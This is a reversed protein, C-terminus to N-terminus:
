RYSNFIYELEDETFYGRYIELIKNDDDNFLKDRFLRGDNGMRAIDLTVGTPVIPYRMLDVEQVVKTIPLNYKRESECYLRLKENKLSVVVTIFESNIESIDLIYTYDPDPPYVPPEVVEDEIETFFPAEGFVNCTGEWYGFYVDDPDDPDVPYVYTINTKFVGEGFVNKTYGKFGFFIDNDDKSEEERFIGEGFVNLSNNKFGFWEHEKVEEQYFPGEGFVTKVGNRFGFWDGKITDDIRFVGYGIVDKVQGKFGFWGSEENDILNKFIKSGFGDEQYGKFGFYEVDEDEKDGFDINSAVEIERSRMLEKEIKRDERNREISLKNLLKRSRDRKEILGNIHKDLGNWILKFKGQEKSVRFIIECGDDSKIRLYDKDKYRVKLVVSFEDGLGGKLNKLKVGRYEESDEDYKRWVEKPMGLYNMLSVIPEVNKKMPKGVFIRELIGTHSDLLGDKHEQIFDNVVKVPTVKTYSEGKKLEDLDCVEIYNFIIDLLEKKSGKHGEQLWKEYIIDLIGIDFQDINVEHPNDYNSLHAYLEELRERLNKVSKHNYLSLIISKLDEHKVGENKIPSKNTSIAHWQSVNFKRAM